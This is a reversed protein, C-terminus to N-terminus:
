RGWVKGLCSEPLKKENETPSDKKAAAELM